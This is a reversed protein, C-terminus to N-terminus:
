EFCECLSVCSERGLEHMALALELPEICRSEGGSKHIFWKTM